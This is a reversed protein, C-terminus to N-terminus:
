EKAALKIVFDSLVSKSRRRGPNKSIAFQLVSGSIIQAVNKPDLGIMIEDRAEANKIIQSVMRAYPARFYKTTQELEDENNIVEAALILFGKLVNPRHIADITLELFDDIDDKFNGNDPTVWEKVNPLLAEEVIRNKDGSWWNYLVNRSVNAKSAISKISLSGYGNEEILLRTAHLIAEHKSSDRRRKCAASKHTTAPPHNLTSTNIKTPVFISNNM